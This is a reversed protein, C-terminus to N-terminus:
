GVGCGGGPGGGCGGGSGGGSGSKAVVVAVVVSTACFDKTGPDVLTQVKKTFCIQSLVAQLSGRGAAFLM